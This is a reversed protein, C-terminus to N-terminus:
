IKFINLVGYWLQKLKRIEFCNLKSEKVHRAGNKIKTSLRVFGIIVITSTDVCVSSMDLVM